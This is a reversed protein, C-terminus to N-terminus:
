SEFYGAIKGLEEQTFVNPYQMVLANLVTQSRERPQQMIAMTLYFVFSAGLRLVPRQWNTCETIVFQLLSPAAQAIIAFVHDCDSELQLVRNLFRLAASIGNASGAHLYVECVNLVNTICEEDENFLSSCITPFTTLLNFLEKVYEDNNYQSNQLAIETIHRLVSYFDSRFSKAYFKTITLLTKLLLSSQYHHQFYALLTNM